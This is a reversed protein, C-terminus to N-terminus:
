NEAQKIYQSVDYDETPEVLNICHHKFNKLINEDPKDTGINMYKYIQMSDASIIEIDPFIQAIKISIASKGIATPGTLIVIRNLNVM